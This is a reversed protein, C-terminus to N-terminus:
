EKWFDNVDFHTTGIITRGMIERIGTNEKKIKEGDKPSEDNAILLDAYEDSKEMNEAYTYLKALNYYAAYRLKRDAKLKPDAFREPIAQFYEIIEKLEDLNLGTEPTMAELAKKLANAKEQFPINEPHKKEDTTRLRIDNTYVYFGYLISARYSAGNALEQTTERMFRASLTEKNNEWYNRAERSTNFRSSHSYKKKAGTLTKYVQSEVVNTAELIRYSKPMTYEINLDYSYSKSGDKNTYVHEKVDVESILFESFSIELTLKAKEADETKRQGDISLSRELSEINVNNKIVPSGFDIQTNYYFFLPTQPRAPSLRYTVKLKLDDIDVNKQGFSFTFATITCFLLLFKKM